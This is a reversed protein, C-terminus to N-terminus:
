VKSGQSSIKEQSHKTYHLCNVWRAVIINDLEIYKKNIM